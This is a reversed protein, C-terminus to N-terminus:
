RSRIYFMSIYLQLKCFFSFRCILIICSSYGHWCRMLSECWEREETVFCSHIWWWAGPRM